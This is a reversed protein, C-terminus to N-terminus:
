LRTKKVKFRAKESVFHGIREPSALFQGYLRISRVDTSWVLPSWQVELKIVIEDGQWRSSSSVDHTCADYRDVQSGRCGTEPLTDNELTQLLTATGWKLDIIIEDDNVGNGM